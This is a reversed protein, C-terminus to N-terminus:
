KRYFIVGEEKNKEVLVVEIRNLDKMTFITKM